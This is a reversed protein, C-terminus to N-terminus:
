GSAKHELRGDALYWMVWTVPFALGSGVALLWRRGRQRAGAATLGGLALWVGIVGAVAYATSVDETDERM